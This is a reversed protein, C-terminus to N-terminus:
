PICPYNLEVELRYKGAKLDQDIVRHLKWFDPQVAARMWVALQEDEMAHWCDYKSKSADGTGNWDGWTEVPFGTGQITRGGGEKERGFRYCNTRLWEDSKSSFKNQATAWSLGSKKWPIAVSDPDSLAFTDKFGGGANGDPDSLAFTDNFLSRAILGCPYYYIGTSAM